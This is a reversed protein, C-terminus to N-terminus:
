QLEKLGAATLLYAGRSFTKDAALELVAQGAQEPTLAPGRITLFDPM